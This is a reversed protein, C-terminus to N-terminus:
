PAKQKARTSPLPAVAKMEPARLFEFDCGKDAQTVQELFLKRYGRAGASKKAGGAAKLRAAIEDDSVLLTLSRNAVSLKIRDGSRVIGLPGGIASEPTVHLVITGM